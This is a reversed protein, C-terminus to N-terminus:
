ATGSSSSPRPCSSGPPAWALWRRPRGSAWCAPPTRRRVPAAGGGEAARWAGEAEETFFQPGGAERAAEGGEASGAGGAAEGPASPPSPAREEAEGVAAQLRPRPSEAESRQVGALAQCRAAQSLKELGSCSQLPACGEATSRSPGSPPSLAPAGTASGPLSGGDQTAPLPARPKTKAPLASTSVLKNKCLEGRTEKIRARYVNSSRIYTSSTQTSGGGRKGLGGDPHLM